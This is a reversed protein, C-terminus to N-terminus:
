GGGDSVESALVTSVNALESGVLPGIIGPLVALGFALVLAIGTRRTRQLLSTM